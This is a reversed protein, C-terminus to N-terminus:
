EKSFMRIYEAEMEVWKMKGFPDMTRPIKDGMGQQSSYLTSENQCNVTGYEVMGRMAGTELCHATVLKFGLPEVESLVVDPKGDHCFVDPYMKLGPVKENIKRCQEINTIGIVLTMPAGIEAARMCREIAEDLGYKYMAETRAIVMCDTGELADMAAKIKALWENVPVVEYADQDGHMVRQWGRLGTTDDITMASAGAKALRKATWYAHVPSDGYGDEADVILPLPSINTIRETMMLVEDLTLLGMDPMGQMSFSMCGSSLLAAKFGSMEAAKASMCDWICPAFVRGQELLQKLSQREGM